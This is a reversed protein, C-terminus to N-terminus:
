CLYTFHWLLLENLSIHCKTSLPVYLVSTRMSCEWQFCYVVNLSTRSTAKRSSAFSSYSPQWLLVQSTVSSSGLSRTTRISIRIQFYVSSPIQTQKPQWWGYIYAKFTDLVLWHYRRTVNVRVWLWNVASLLIIERITNFFDLTEAKLYSLKKKQIYKKFRHFLCGKPRLLITAWRYGRKLILDSSFSYLSVLHISSMITQFYHRQM